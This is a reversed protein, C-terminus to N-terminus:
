NQTWNTVTWGAFDYGTKTPQAINNMGGSAGALAGYVCTSPNTITGAGDSDWRLNISNGDNWQATCTVNGDYTYVGAAGAAFYLKPNANDPLTKTGPLNPCDWGIFTHGTYSACKDTVDALTYCDDYTVNQTLTAGTKAGADGCAYTITHADPTWHAYLTGTSSASSTIYQDLIAHSSRAGTDMVFTKNANIYKTANAGTGDYYGTFTYGTLTPATTLTTIGGTGLNQTDNNRATTSPYVAIGYRTYLTAPVPAGSISSWDSDTSKHEVTASVGTVGSCQTRTYSSNNNLNVTGDVPTWQATYYFTGSGKEEGGWYLPDGSCNSNTTGVAIEGPTALAPSAAMVVLMSTLFIKNKM